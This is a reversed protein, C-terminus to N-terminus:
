NLENDIANRGVSLDVGNTLMNILTSTMLCDFGVAGDKARYMETNATWSMAAALGRKSLALHRSFLQASPALPPPALQREGISKSAHTWHSPPEAAIKFVVRPRTRALLLFALSFSLLCESGIRSLRQIFLWM